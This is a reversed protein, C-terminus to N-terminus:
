LTPGVARGAKKKPADALMRGVQGSRTDEAAYERASRGALNDARDPDAGADLLARVSPVDRNHVARMLATEGRSNPLDVQAGGALLLTVGESFGSSAAIILPTDGNRDRQNADAKRQLLYTLWPVDRRRTVIHLATEGNDRDKLDIITSGPKDLIDRAKIFDRDRVAKIFNYSDSFQAAAPMALAMAVAMALAALGARVLGRAM